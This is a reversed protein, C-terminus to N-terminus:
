LSPLAITASQTVRLPQAAVGVVVLNPLEEQSSHVPQSASAVTFSQEMWPPLWRQGPAVLAIGALIALSALHGLLWTGYVITWDSGALGRAALVLVGLKVAAFIANRWFQLGGRLLGLLAQDVVMAAALLHESATDSSWSATGAVIEADRGAQVRETVQSLIWSARDLRCRPLAWRLCPTLEAPPVLRCGIGSHPLM